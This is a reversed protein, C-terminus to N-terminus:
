RDATRQDDQRRRRLHRRPERALLLLDPGRAAARGVVRRARDVGANQQLIGTPYNIQFAYAGGRNPQTGCTDIHSVQGANDYYKWAAKTPSALYVGPVDCAYMPYTGAKAEGAGALGAASLISVAIISAQARLGTSKKM